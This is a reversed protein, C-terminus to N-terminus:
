RILEKPNQRKYMIMMLDKPFEKGGSMDRIQM